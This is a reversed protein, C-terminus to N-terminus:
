HKFLVAIFDNMEGVKVVGDRNGRDFRVDNYLSIPGIPSVSVRWKSDVRAQYTIRGQLDTPIKAFITDKWTGGFYSGTNGSIGVDVGNGNLGQGTEDTVLVNILTLPVEPIPEEHKCASLMAVIGILWFVLKM